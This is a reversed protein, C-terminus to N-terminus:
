VTQGRGGDEERSAPCALVRSTITGEHLITELLAGAPADASTRLQVRSGKLRTLSYGRALVALPSLADLAALRRDLEARKARVLATLAAGARGAHEALWRAYQRMLTRPSAAALRRRLNDLRELQDALRSVLANRLRKCDDALAAAISALEPVVLKGADTPTLARVDAALDSLTVDTEHGVASVVPTRCGAIARVVEETNFAALDEASGGGRGVIVVDALGAADVLKLAAAIEFAAGAGQVPVPVVLVDAAPFRGHITSLMDQVAAGSPSTVLAIRRPLYPLPVKRSPEFLGEAALREKLRLLAAQLAGAGIPEVASVLVQLRGAPGYFSISGAVLVAIGDALFQGYVAATRRYMVAELRAGADKLTFFLHGAPSRSLNSVEGKVWVAPLSELWERLRAAVQSVTLVRRSGNM